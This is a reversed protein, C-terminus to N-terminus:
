QVANKNDEVQQKSHKFYEVCQSLLLADNVHGLHKFKYKYFKEGKANKDQFSSLHCISEFLSAPQSTGDDFKRQRIKLAEVFRNLVLLSSGKVPIIAPFSSAFGDNSVIAYVDYTKNLKHGDPSLVTKYDIHGKDNRDANDLATQYVEGDADHKQIFENEAFESIYKDIFCPVFDFESYVENTLTNYMQGLKIGDVWELHNAHNAMNIFCRSNSEDVNEYGTEGAVDALIASLDTNNITALDTSM